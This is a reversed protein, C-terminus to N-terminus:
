ASFHLLHLLSLLELFIFRFFRLIYTTLPIFASIIIYIVFFVPIWRAIDWLIYEKPPHSNDDLAVMLEKAEKDSLVRKGM